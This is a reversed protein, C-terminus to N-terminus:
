AESSAIAQLVGARRHRRYTLISQAYHLVIDILSLKCIPSEAYVQHYKLRANSIDFNTEAYHKVFRQNQTMSDSCQLLACIDEFDRANRGEPLRTRESFNYYAFRRVNRAQILIPIDRDSAPCLVPKGELAAEMVGRGTAIVIDSSDILQAAHTTYQQDTIFVTDEPALRKIESYITDDQVTGIFIMQVDITRQRLMKVLNIAAMMTKRYTSSFRGIRLLKTAGPRMNAHMRAILDENQLIRCARNPIFHIKGGKHRKSRKFYRYNELSFVVMSETKPYYRKPSAGGCKTHVAPTRTLISALRTFLHSRKDFSHIVNIRYKKILRTLSIVIGVGLTETIIPHYHDSDKFVPSAVPGISVIYVNHQMAMEDAVTQLSYYHGGPKTNPCSITYLINM